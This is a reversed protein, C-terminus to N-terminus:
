EMTVRGNPTVFSIFIDLPVPLSCLRGELYLASNKGMLNLSM